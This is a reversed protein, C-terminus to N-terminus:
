EDRAGDYYSDERKLLLGIGKAFLIMAVCAGFGYLANFGFVREIAFHPEITVLLEAAVTAALVAAFVWWLRRITEPRVLWHKQM